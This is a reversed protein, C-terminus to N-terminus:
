TIFLHKKVPYQKEHEDSKWPWVYMQLYFM